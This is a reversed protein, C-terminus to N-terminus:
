IAKAVIKTEKVLEAALAQLGLVGRPETDLYPVTTIRVPTLPNTAVFQTLDALAATQTREVNSLFIQANEEDQIVQNVVINRVKIPLDPSEFTLDNLLRISERVALETPVTVILFETRVADAFLDELDYMQFQFSLLTSKATEVAAKIEERRSSTGLFLKVVSNANITDSLRLLRDILDSLFGPTSLMRLTHGTPATDLVIRDFGGKKVLNVIKALAVVEDTGAPLTDFVQQLDKLTDRLGRNDDDGGNESSTSQEHPNSSSGMLQDVVAKFQQLSATPDVELVSLSGDTNYGPVNALSCDQLQGGSLNMAVADGLSHAPDTSILAVKHGGIAALSIALAASTTTKGVGGKGGCIVMKLATADRPEEHQHHNDFLHAFNPNNAFVSSGVYALAPVGVLEVNFLPVQTMAIPQPSGNSQFEIRGSVKQVAEQLAQIRLAQGTVRRQLYRQSAAAASVDDTTTGATTVCQNVVMDTVAISQRQLESVLRKSEAVSLVTPVTVVVFRTADAQQLVTQLRSVKTAFDQM